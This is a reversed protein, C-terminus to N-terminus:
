ESKKAILEAQLDYAADEFVAFDSRCVDRNDRYMDADLKIMSIRMKAPDDTEIICTHQVVNIGDIVTYGVRQITDKCKLTETM